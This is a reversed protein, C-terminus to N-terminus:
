INKGLVCPLLKQLTRLVHSLSLKLLALPWCGAAKIVIFVTM